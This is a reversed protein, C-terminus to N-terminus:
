FFTEFGISNLRMTHLTKKFNVIQTDFYNFTVQPKRGLNKKIRSGKHLTVRNVDFLFTTM